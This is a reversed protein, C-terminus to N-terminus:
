NASLPNLKIDKFWCPSGLDQLGIGSTNGGARSHGTRASPHWGALTKGDFIPAFEADAVHSSVGVGLHFLLVPFLQVSKM